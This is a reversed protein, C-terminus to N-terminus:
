KKTFCINKVRGANVCFGSVKGEKDRNYTVTMARINIITFEDRLGPSFRIDESEYKRRAILKNEKILMTYIVDLEESYYDGAYEKLQEPTPSFVQFPEFIVTEQGEIEIRLNKTGTKEEKVFTIKIGVPADVAHFETKSVPSFHFTYGSSTKVQLKNEKITLKWNSGTKPNRFAGTRKKLVSKSLKIFRPKGAAGTAAEGPKEKFADALYIDAVQRALRSPNIAGVNALCAVSFKQEPFRMLQSRYGAWGGGHSVTKLGRYTDIRLAFAYDLEKGNNLKGRVLMKEILEQGSKGVKNHYFNQDWLYLDEVTTLVGGDGVLDFLYLETRFGGGRKPEYGIARNKIIRTYDDYFQTNKMGLPKFINERAFDGLSKGSVRRVIEGLLFYGSNSYLYEDGPKFNLAKQRAILEIMQEEPYDNAFNMGAMSMLALYDRIGSTHHILNRITIKDGYDPMTPFYKRIDDNLSLKGAEELLLICMAVFQKSTSAIDFVSKSSLPVDRELDAMGYGRKYIIKGDKIVALACGPSDNTDWKAFLKDVRDTLQDANAFVTFALIFVATVATMLGMSSHKQKKM